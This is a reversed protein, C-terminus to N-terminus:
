QGVKVLAYSSNSYVIDLTDIQDGPFDKKQIILYDINLSPALTVYLPLNEEVPFKELQRWPELIEILKKIDYLDIGRAIDTARYGIPRLMEYRAAGEFSVKYPPLAIIVDGIATQERAAKVIDISDKEESTQCTIRGKQLCSIEKLVYGGQDNHDISYILISFLILGFVPKISFRILRPYPLLATLQGIQSFALFILIVLLPPLYRIGRILFMQLPLLKLFHEIQAEIFSLGITFCLIGIIWGIIMLAQSDGRKKWPIM